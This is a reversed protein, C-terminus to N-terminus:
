YNGSARIVFFVNIKLVFHFLIIVAERHPNRYEAAFVPKLNPFAQIILTRVNM